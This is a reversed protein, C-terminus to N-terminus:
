EHLAAGNSAIVKKYWYFSKKKYRALTGSGDDHRDVYIVGYRKSMQATSASVLDICGWITYGLVPIGEELAEEVALLHKKLYDIRYEDEVTWQGKEADFVLEDTAGIGNEVIFLPKQFKDWFTNLIVRLGQPDIQWGWDSAPLYPNVVGTFLDGAQTAETGKAAACTSVYYSLSVFDVTHEQLLEREGPRIDLSIGQERFFRHSYGPYRGRAQVELFLENQHNLEMSAIVDEPKPTLPYSPMALVMCGIKFDANIEHGIKVALASAVLEHHIAQYLESPSIDEKSIPIAGSMFPSSLISNIENFTLWYTVKDRYRMFITRVYHEYFDILKRNTWGGYHEALYLPTEYHSITVLPEIGYAHCEDFLADYFALGEENPEDEDGRPFIRSWAISTRFVTFGLEAFLRIDEKYRHYFDIGQLKLNDSTPGEARPGKLGQPLVDQISLGKHGEDYAGELQNAAVAGGWLFHEPFM